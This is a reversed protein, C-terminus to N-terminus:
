TFFRSQSRICIGLIKSLKNNVDPDAIMPESIEDLDAVVEAHYKANADPRLAPKIGTKLETIRTNAKDVLGKLVQKENDMGKDIMIQIRGKAIELSEILTEDESICISAKAKMEATWDTFTFAKDALLTGIHVEIIRGQFVNEGAFKDLMQSQTAHVVDRFDM